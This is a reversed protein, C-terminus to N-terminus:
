QEPCEVNFDVLFALLDVINTVGDGNLDTPCSSPQVQVCQALMSDWTTGLGCFTEQLFCSFDCTGNDILAEPQYNCAALYTCGPCGDGLNPCPDPVATEGETLILSQQSPVEEYVDVIGSPWSVTISDLVNESGLGFMEWRSNQGMYNEGCFTMRYNMEGGFYVRIKAGVGDRNSVTGELRLKIWHNSNPIGRLVQAYEGVRNSVLDPFGDNNFDGIASSFSLVNQSFLVGTDQTFQGGNNWFFHDPVDPYQLLISPYNTYISFGTCVHLDEWGDNDADLWNAAWSLRHVEVSDSDQPVFPTFLGGDNNLLFNGEFEGAALYIDQDNDRDYDAISTSMANISYDLGMNHAQDVFLTESGEPQQEYYKNAWCLRDRILHLDLLEDENFDVWHGQFSQEVIGGLELSETVDEFIGGGLNHYLENHPVDQGSVYNAVFLDLLGDSDYDGFSAGYSRRDSQDIGCVESIDEFVLDNVNRYMRNPALRYTVFLDQDGDNDIDAWVIAKAEHPYYPLELQIPDFSTGNGLYFLLFGEFQTFSLDDYGDGNFDAMSLGSGHYGGIHNTIVDMENSVDVFQGYGAHTQFVYFFVLLGRWILWRLAGVAADFGEARKVSM